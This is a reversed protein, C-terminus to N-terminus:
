QSVPDLQAAEFQATKLRRWITSRSRGSLRAAWTLFAVGELEPCATFDRWLELVDKEERKVSAQKEGIRCPKKLNQARTELQVRSM